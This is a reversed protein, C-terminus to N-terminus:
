QSFYPFKLFASYKYSLPFALRTILDPDMHHEGETVPDPDMHNEGETVPDPDMHHEGETVPDSKKNHISLPDM